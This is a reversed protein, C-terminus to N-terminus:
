VWGLKVHKFYAQIYTQVLAVHNADMSANIANLTIQSSTIDKLAHQAAIQEV